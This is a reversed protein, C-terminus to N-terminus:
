DDPLLGRRRLAARCADASVDIRAYELWESFTDARVFATATRRTHPNPNLLDAVAVECVAAALMQYPAGVTERIEPIPEDFYSM